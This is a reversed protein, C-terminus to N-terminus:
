LSMGGSQRGCPLQSRAEELISFCFILQVEALENELDIRERDLRGREMAATKMM